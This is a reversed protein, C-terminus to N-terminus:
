PITKPCFLDSFYTKRPYEQVRRILSKKLQNAIVEEKDKELAAQLKNKIVQIDYPKEDLYQLYTTIMESYNGYAKHIDGIRLLYQTDKTEKYAAVYLETAETPFRKRMFENAISNLYIPNKIGKEKAKKFSRKQLKTNGQQSYLYGLSVWFHPRIEKKKLKKKLFNIAKDQQGLKDLCEIYQKTFYDRKPHKKCLKKYYPLAKEYENQYFYKRALEEDGNKAKQKGIKPPPPPINNSQGYLMTTTFGFLFLSLVVISLSLKSKM